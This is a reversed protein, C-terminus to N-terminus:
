LMGLSVAIVAIAVSTRRAKRPARVREPESSTELLIPDVARLRRNPDKRLCGRIVQRVTSPTSPPLKSWDPESELIQALVEAQTNGAFARRGTLCEYAVCGFAWTDTRQDVPSGRAQEPSM